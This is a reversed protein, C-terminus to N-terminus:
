ATVLAAPINLRPAVGGVAAIVMGSASMTLMVYVFVMGAKRHLTAGKAAYLAVFGSILGLSGTIIHLALTMRM